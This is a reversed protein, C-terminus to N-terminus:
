SGVIRRFSNSGMDIVCVAAADPDTTRCGTLATLL